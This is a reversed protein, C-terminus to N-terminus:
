RAERIESITWSGNRANLTFQIRASGVRGDQGRYSWSATCRGASSAAEADGRAGNASAATAPRIDFRITERESWIGSFIFFIQDAGYYGSDDGLSSLSLFVRGEEPLFRRLTEASRTRFAEALGSMVRNIARDQASQATEAPAPGALLATCVLPALALSLARRSPWSITCV